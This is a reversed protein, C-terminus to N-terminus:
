ESSLPPPLPTARSDIAASWADKGKPACSVMVEIASPVFMELLARASTSITSPEVSPTSASVPLPLSTAAASCAIAVVAVPCCCTSRKRTRPSTPSLTVSRMPLVLPPSWTRASASAGTPWWRAAKM